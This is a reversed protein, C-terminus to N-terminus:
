GRKTRWGGKYIIDDGRILRPRHQIERSQEQAGWFIDDKLEEIVYISPMTSRTVWDTLVAILARNGEGQAQGDLYAQRMDAYDCKCSNVVWHGGDFM